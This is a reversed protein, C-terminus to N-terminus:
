CWRSSGSGSYVAECRTSWKTPSTGAAPLDLTAADPHDSRGYGLRDLNLTAFGRAAALRAYASWYTHDYTAGHLLLQVPAQRDLHAPRCFEAFVRRPLPDGPFRRVSLYRDGCQPAAAVTSPVPVLLFLVAAIAAVSFARM